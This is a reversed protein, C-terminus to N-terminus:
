DFLRSCTRRPVTESEVIRATMIANRWIGASTKRDSGEPWSVGLDM